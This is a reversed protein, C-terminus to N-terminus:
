NPPSLLPRWPNGTPWTYDGDFFQFSGEEIDVIAVQQPGIVDMWGLEDAFLILHRGDPSWFQMRAFLPENAQLDVTTIPCSISEFDLDFICLGSEFKESQGYLFSIQNDSPSWISNFLIVDREVAWNNITSLCTRENHIVDLVCPPTTRSGNTYLITYPLSSSWPNNWSTNVNGYQRFIDGTPTYIALNYNLRDSFYRKTYLVSLFRGDPSWYTTASEVFPEDLTPLFPNRLTTETDMNNDIIMVVDSGNVKNIRISFRGNSSLVDINAAAQKMYENTRLDIVTSETNPTKIQMFLDNGQWLWGVYSKDTSLAVLQQDGTSANFVLAARENYFNLLLINASPATIWKPLVFLNFQPTAQSTTITPNPTTVSSAEISLTSQAPTATSSPTITLRLTPQSPISTISKVTPIPSPQLAPSGDNELTCANM